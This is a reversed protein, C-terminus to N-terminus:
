SLETGMIVVRAGGRIGSCSMISPPALIEEGNIWLSGPALGIAKNDMENVLTNNERLVHFFQTSLSSFNIRIHGILVKLGLDKRDSGTVFYRITNKSDGVINLQPSQPQKVIQIGQFVAYAEAKNNSSLKLSWYFEVEQNGRPGFLVGGV